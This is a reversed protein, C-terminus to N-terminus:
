HYDKSVEQSTPPSHSPLFCWMKIIRAFSFDEKSVLLDNCWLSADPCGQFFFLVDRSPSVALIPLLSPFNLRGHVIWLLFISRVRWDVGMHMLKSVRCLVVTEKQWISGYLLLECLARFCSGLIVALSCPDPFCLHPHFEEEGREMWCVQLQFAETCGPHKKGTDELLHCAEVM